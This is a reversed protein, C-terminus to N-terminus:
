SNYTGLIKQYFNMGNASYLLIKDVEDMGSLDDVNVDCYMLKKIRVKLELIM